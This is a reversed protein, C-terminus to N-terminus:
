FGSIRDGLGTIQEILRFGNLPATKVADNLDSDVLDLLRMRKLVGYNLAISPNIRIGRPNICVFKNLQLNGRPALEANGELTSWELTPDESM